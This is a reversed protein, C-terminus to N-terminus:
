SGKCHCEVSSSARLSFHLSHTLKLLMHINVSLNKKSVTTGASNKKSVTTGASGPAAPASEITQGLRLAAVVDQFDLASMGQAPNM